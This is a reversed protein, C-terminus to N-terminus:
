GRCKPCRIYQTGERHHWSHIVRGEGLCHGCKGTSAEYDQLHNFYDIHTIVISVRHVVQDWVQVGREPGDTIIRPIDGTVLLRGSGSNLYSFPEWGDVGVRAKAIADIHYMQM